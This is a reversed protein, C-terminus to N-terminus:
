AANGGYNAGWLRDFKETMSYADIPEFRIAKGHVIPTKNIEDAVALVKEYDEALAPHAIIKATM